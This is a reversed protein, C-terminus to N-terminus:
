RSSGPHSDGHIRHHQQGGGDNHGCSHAEHLPRVGVLDARQALEEGAGVVVGDEEGVRVDTVSRALGPAEQGHGGRRYRILRLLLM